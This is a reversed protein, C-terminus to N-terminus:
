KKSLLIADLTRNTSKQRLRCDTVLIFKNLLSNAFQFFDEAIKDMTTARLYQIYIHIYTQLTLYKM